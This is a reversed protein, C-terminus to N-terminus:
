FRPGGRAGRNHIVKSFFLSFTVHGWALPLDWAQSTIPGFFYDFFQHSIFGSLIILKKIISDSATKTLRKVNIFNFSKKLEM